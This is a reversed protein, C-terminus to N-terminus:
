RGDVQVVGDSIVEATLTANSKLNVIRVEDGKAGDELAKGPASLNLGGDSLVITVADGRNVIRPETVSGEIVPRGQLLIRRTEKGILEEPNRLSGSPLAMMAIETMRLDNEALIVGAPIRRVPVYAPVAIVAQGRFGTSSGDAEILRAAFMGSRPDYSFDKLTLGSDPLGKPLRLEIRGDQPIEQGSAMLLQEEVLTAVASGALLDEAAHLAAGALLSLGALAGTFFTRASM